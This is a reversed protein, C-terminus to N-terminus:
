FYTWAGLGLTWEDQADQQGDDEASYEGQAGM